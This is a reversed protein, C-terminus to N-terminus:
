KNKQGIRLAFDLGIYLVFFGAMAITLIVYIQRILKGLPTEADKGHLSGSGAGNLRVGHCEKRSCVEARDAPSVPSAPDTPSLIRHGGHCVICTPVMESGFLYSRGHPTELYTKYANAHCGASGCEEVEWGREMEKIPRTDHRRHCDGCTAANANGKELSKEHISATYNENYIQTHCWKQTCLQRQELIDKRTINGTKKHCVECGIGREKHIGKKWSATIENTKNEEGSVNAAVSSLLVLLILASLAKKMYSISRRADTLCSQSRM